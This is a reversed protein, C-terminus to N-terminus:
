FSQRYFYVDQYASAIATIFYETIGVTILFVLTNSAAQLIPITNVGVLVNDNNRLEILSIFHQLSDFVIVGDKMTAIADTNNYKVSRISVDPTLNATDTDWTVLLKNAFKLKNCLQM